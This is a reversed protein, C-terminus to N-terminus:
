SIKKAHEKKVQTEIKKFLKNIGGEVTNSKASAFLEKNKIHLKIEFVNEEKKNKDFYLEAKTIHIISDLKELKEKIAQKTGEFLNFNRQNLVINVSNMLNQALIDQGKTSTPITGKETM